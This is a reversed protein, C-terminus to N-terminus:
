TDIVTHICTERNYKQEIGKFQKWYQLIVYITAHWGTQIIIYMYEYGYQRVLVTIVIEIAVRCNITEREFM